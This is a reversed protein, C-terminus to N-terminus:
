NGLLNTNDLRIHQTLASELTARPGVQRVRLVFTKMRAKKAYVPISRAIIKPLRAMLFKIDSRHEIVVIDNVRIM